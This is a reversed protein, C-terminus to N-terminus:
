SLNQVTVQWILKCRLQYECLYHVVRLLLDKVLCEEKTVAEDRSSKGLMPNAEEWLLKTEADHRERVLGKLKAADFLQPRLPAM